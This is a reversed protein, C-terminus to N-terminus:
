DDSPGRNLGDFFGKNKGTLYGIIYRDYFEGIKRIDNVDEAMQRLKDLDSNIRECCLELAKNVTEQPTWNALKEVGVVYAGAFPKANNAYAFATRVVHHPIKEGVRQGEVPHTAFIFPSPIRETYFGGAPHHANTVYEHIRGTVIVVERETTGLHFLDGNIYIVGKRNSEIVNVNGDIYITGGDLNEVKGVNGRCIVTGEKLFIGLKPLTSRSSKSKVLSRTQTEEKENAIKSSLLKRPNIEPMIIELAQNKQILEEALSTISESVYRDKGKRIVSELFNLFDYDKALRELLEPKPNAVPGSMRVGSRKRTEVASRLYWIFEDDRLHKAYDPKVIPSGDIVIQRVFNNKERSRREPSM